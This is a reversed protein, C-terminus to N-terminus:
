ECSRASRQPLLGRAFEAFLARKVAALDACKDCLQGNVGRFFTGPVMEAFLWARFFTGPVMKIHSGHTSVASPVVTGRDNGAVSM